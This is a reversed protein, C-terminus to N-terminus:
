RECKEGPYIIWRRNKGEQWVVIGVGKVYESKYRPMFMIAFQAVSLAVLALTLFNYWKWNRMRDELNKM